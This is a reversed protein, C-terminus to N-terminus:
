CAGEQTTVTLRYGLETYTGEGGAIGPPTYDDEKSRVREIHVCFEADAGNASVTFYADANTNGDAASAAVGDQPADGGNEVVESELLTEYEYMPVVPKGSEDVRYLFGDLEHTAQEVASQLEDDSWKWRDQVDVGRFGMVACVAAMGILTIRAVVFAVDPVEPASPNLSERWSRVRQAKVCAMLILLAALVFLIISLQTLM